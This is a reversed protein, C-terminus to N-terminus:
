MPVRFRVTTGAPTSDRRFGTTLEQMIASGRGRDPSSSRPTRFRGFDQVTVDLVRGEGEVMEISVDGAQRGAYAHEIANACAEGVALLLANVTQETTGDETLWTRMAARLERLEEPRAPMLRRFTRLASPLLRVALVAVDDGRHAAVGLDLVLLDCVQEVPVNSLAGAARELRRLGDEIHEGRKEILGDSYLVLTSGPELVTEAAKRSRGYDGYLPPSQADDLRRVDGGASVLIMPPHGASAYDLRGTEPDLVAYCVTAFDTSSTRDLFRDLRALLEGPSSAYEGLAALATRLQGMAAAAAVGHGVVDGVTVAVRGDPLLFADYWDGGVELMESGAEYRASYAVRAPMEIRTPLLSRQLALAIEREEAERARLAEEARTRETIDLGTPHLFRVAGSEDRIPHVAFDVVRRSGNALWYPLTERVVEGSRAQETALRIREQVEESGRWWPTQWFPRGLVQERDYGCFDLALTNVERLTGDPDLIGAFIGSQNFVTEFKATTAALQEDALKRATIDRAIKAAGVVEGGDDRIPSISLSLELRRGDKTVRITEFHDIFEGARLKAIIEDEEEQLEAPILRRINEGIMEEATFGFIREASANWSTITGDLSKSIIADSSADVVAALYAMRDFLPAPDRREGLGGPTAPTKSEANVTGL